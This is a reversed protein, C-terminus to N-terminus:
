HLSSVIVARATNVHGGELHRNVKGLAQRANTASALASYLRGITKLVLGWRIRRLDLICEKAVSLPRSIDM